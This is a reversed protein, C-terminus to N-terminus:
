KTGLIQETLKREDEALKKRAKIKSELEAREKILQAENEIRQKTWRRIKKAVNELPEFYIVGSPCDQYGYRNEDYHNYRVLVKDSIIGLVEEEGDGYGIQCVNDYELFDHNVGYNSGDVLRIPKLNRIYVKKFEDVIIKDGVNIEPFTPKHSCTVLLFVFLFVCLKPKM